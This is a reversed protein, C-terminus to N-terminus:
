RAKSNKTSKFCYIGLALFLAPIGVVCIWFIVNLYRPSIAFLGPEDNRDDSFMMYADPSFSFFLANYMLRLNGSFRMFFNTSSKEGTFLLLGEKGAYLLADGTGALPRCSPCDINYGYATVVGGKIGNLVPHDYFKDLLVGGEYDRLAYDRFSMEQKDLINVGKTSLFKRISPLSTGGFLVVNGRYNILANLEDGKLDILPDAIFLTGCKDWEEFSLPFLTIGRDMLMSYMIGGGKESFDSVDPEGHGKTYCVGIDGNVVRNITRVIDKEDIREGVLYNDGSIVVFNGPTLTSVKNKLRNYEITNLVPHLAKYTIRDNHDKLEEMLANFYSKYDEKNVPRVYIVEVDNKLQEIYKATTKSISISGKSTMDLKATTLVKMDLFVLSVFIVLIFVLLSPLVYKFRAGFVVHYFSVLEERATYRLVLALFVTYLAFAFLIRYRYEPMIAVAILLFIGLVYFLTLLIRKM